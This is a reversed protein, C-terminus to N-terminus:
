RQRSVGGAAGAIPRASDPAARIRGRDPRGSGSDCREGTWRDSLGARM